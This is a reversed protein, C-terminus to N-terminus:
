VRLLFEICIHLPLLWLSDSLYSYREKMMIPSLFINQLRSKINWKLMYIKYFFRSKKKMYVARNYEFWGKEREEKDVVGMAGGNELDNLIMICDDKNVSLKGQFDNDSFQFYLVAIELLTSCLYSYKLKKMTHWFRYVDIENKYKSFFLGTDMIMRISLGSIIFHKIMHLSIFILNDTKGLAYYYGSETIVKEYTELVFENGDTKNFWIDEVIEDYLKTHLEICGMDPHYYVAHHTIKNRPNVIFGKDRLLNCAKLENKVGIFIDTDASPRCEPVYYLNSVNFGKLLVATLDHIYFENLLLIINQKRMYTSIFVDRVNIIAKEYIDHPCANINSNKIAYAIVTYISHLKALSITKNFDIDQVSNEAKINKSGCTFLYLLYEFEPTM